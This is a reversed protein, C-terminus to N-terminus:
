HRNKRDTLRSVVYEIAHRVTSIKEADEDPIDIDFEDEFSMVLEVTDLSDAKLDESFRTDLTIQDPNVSLNDQIIERVKLEVDARLESAKSDSTQGNGAGIATRSDTVAGLSVRYAFSEPILGNSRQGTRKQKIEAVSLLMIFVVAGVTMRLTTIIQQKFTM